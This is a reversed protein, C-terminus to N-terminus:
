TISNKHNSSQHSVWEVLVSFSYNRSFNKSYSSVGV